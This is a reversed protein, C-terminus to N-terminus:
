TARRDEIPGFACAPPVLSVVAADINWADMFEFHGGPIVPEFLPALGIATWGGQRNRYDAWVQPFLHHHIDIRVQPSYTYTGAPQDMNGCGLAAAAGAVAAAGGLIQRRSIGHPQGCSCASVPVGPKKTM